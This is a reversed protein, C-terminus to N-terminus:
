FWFLHNMWSITKDFFFFFIIPFRFNMSVYWKWLKIIDVFYCILLCSYITARLILKSCFVHFIYLNLLQELIANPLYIPTSYTVWDLLFNRWKTSMSCTLSVYMPYEISAIVIEIIHYVVSKSMGDLMICYKSYNSRQYIM